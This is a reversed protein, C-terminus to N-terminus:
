SVGKNAAKKMVLTKLAAFFNEELNNAEEKEMGLRKQAAFINDELIFNQKMM